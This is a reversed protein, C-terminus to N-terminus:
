CRRTGGAEFTLSPAFRLSQTATGGMPLTVTVTTILQARSLATPLTVCAHIGYGTTDGNAWIVNGKYPEDGHEDAAHWTYELM